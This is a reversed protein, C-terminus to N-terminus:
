RRQRGHPPTYTVPLKWHRRSHGRRASARRRSHTATTLRRVAARKQVRVLLRRGAARRRSESVANAAVERAADPIDRRLAEEVADRVRHRTDGPLSALLEDPWQEAAEFAAAPPSASEDRLLGKTALYEKAFEGVGVGADTQLMKIEDTIPQALIKPLIASLLKCLAIIIPKRTAATAIDM